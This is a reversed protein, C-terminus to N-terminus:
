KIPQIQQVKDLSVIATNVFSEANGREGNNVGLKQATSADIEIVPPNETISCDRNSLPNVRIPQHTKTHLLLSQSGWKHRPCVKAYPISLGQNTQKLEESISFIVTKVEPLCFGEGQQCIEKVKKVTEDSVPIPEKEPIGGFEGVIELNEVTQGNEDLIVLPRNSPHYSLDIDRMQKELIYNSLLTVSMLAAISGGLTIKASDGLGAQLNAEDKNIGGLFYYTILAAASGFLMSVGFPAPKNEVKTMQIGTGLLLAILGIFVFDFLSLTKKPSFAVTKEESVPKPLSQPSDTM